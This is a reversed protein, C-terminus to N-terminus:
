CTAIRSAVSRLHALVCQTCVLVAHELRLQPRTIGGSGLGLGRGCHAVRVRDVDNSM